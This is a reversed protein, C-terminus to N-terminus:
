WKLKMEKVAKVEDPRSIETTHPSEKLIEPNEKAEKSIKIMADIFEDITEKTETETPEIMLAEEVIHPFYVTPPHFGYDMLRKAIDFTKVGYEKYPKGSLVCEHKYVTDVLPPYYKKLKEKIYNANLVATESVERLGKAGMLRIYIYAKLLVTFNGYFSRVRGISKEPKKLTFTEDEKEVVPYPLYDKLSNKVGVPGAGPGGGGHPTSFTKHLNLHVIDFGMDGPRVIGLLANLNAGDYYLLAGKEKLIGSIKLIDKEFLGLTNPNTLMFAATKDTVVKRLEEPDVIGDKSPIEIVKFGVMASSAPNTGHASDPVIVESREEGRDKFYEWIIRMGTYEGHAGAAPQLSFADMGTIEKLYESLEWMIKLNGQVMDEPLLPHMYLFEERRAIEESIKPNYKMTCSGLPYFGSDVGYNRHSLNLIHRILTVENIDPLEVKDRLLNKDLEIKIDYKNFDEIFFKNSGKKSLEKLLKM